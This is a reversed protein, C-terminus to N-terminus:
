QGMVARLQGRLRCSYLLRSLIASRPHHRRLGFFLVVLVLHQKRPVQQCVQPFPHCPRRGFVLRFQRCFLKRHFLHQIDLSHLFLAVKEQIKQFVPQSILSYDLPTQNLYEQLNEQGSSLPYFWYM